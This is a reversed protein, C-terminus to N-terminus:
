EKREPLNAIARAIKAANRWDNRTIFDIWNAYLGKLDNYSRINECMFSEQNSGWDLPCNRCSECGFKQFSYECCFCENVMDRWMTNHLYYSKSVIAKRRKTEDAIWNWMKRHNAIAEERTLKMM